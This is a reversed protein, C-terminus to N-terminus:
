KDECSLRITTPRPLRGIEVRSATSMRQGLPLTWRIVRNVGPRYWWTVSAGYAGVLGRSPSPPLQSRRFIPNESQSFQWIKQVIPLGVNAAERGNKFEARSLIEFPGVAARPAKTRQNRWWLHGTEFLNRVSLAASHDLHCTAFM